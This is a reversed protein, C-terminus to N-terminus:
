RTERTSVRMTVAGRSRWTPSAATSWGSARATAMSTSSCAIPRRARAATARSRTATISIPIIVFPLPWRAAPTSACDCRGMGSSPNSPPWNEIRSTDRVTPATFQVRDGNAFAREAERYVTVGQLRRPDYTLREGSERTVTVTNQKANADEVRAYEGAELGFAQSGKSYRVVDGAHYRDAWQRDAGTIDSRAILVRMSHEQPEVRGSRQLERHIAQNLAIRSENDPSVVLTRDPSAAFDRAITRYREEQDPIEHVRHQRDLSQIAGKVEGNSLQRVVDRLAPDQQRVIETLHAVSVGADQLQEYPRGADIAQHQRADGVLLVRDHADLRHLFANMPKTSALSSEDLVYLRPRDDTREQQRVLHRQLTTSPIGAEALQHAARSTPAFGQVDYGGREAADRIAALTTTKGAGAVGDLAVVQDRSTVVHQVAARQTESLHPYDRDLAPEIQGSAIPRQTQQGARMTEITDRELERMDPTTFSRDPSGPRSDVSLFLHEIM